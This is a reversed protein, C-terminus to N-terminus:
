CSAQIPRPLRECGPLRPLQQGSSRYRPFMVEKDMAGDRVSVREVGENDVPQGLSGLNCVDPGRDHVFM